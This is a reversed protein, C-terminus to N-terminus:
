KCIHAVNAAHYGRAAFVGKAVELIQARRDPGPLYTRRKRRARGPKLVSMDTRIILVSVSTLEQPRAIKRPRPPRSRRDSPVSACAFDLADGGGRLEDANNQNSIKGFSFRPGIPGREKRGGLVIM